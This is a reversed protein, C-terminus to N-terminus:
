SMGDPISSMKESRTSSNGFVPQFISLGKLKESIKAIIDKSDTIQHEKESLRYRIIRIEDKRQRQKAGFECVMRKALIEIEKTAIRKKICEKLFLYKSWLNM